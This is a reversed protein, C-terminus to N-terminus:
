SAAEADLGAAIVEAMQGIEEETIIFPPSIHLAGDNLQRGLIGHDVCYGALRAAAASDHLHVATLLGIGSRVEQVLPHAELPRCAAELVTELSRVRDVLEEGELIDLNAHAAACVSAHGSYTIGHRFVLESDDAWFPGWVHETVVAAGLPLYGSTIGKAILM